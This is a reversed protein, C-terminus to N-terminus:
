CESVQGQAGNSVTTDSSLVSELGGIWTILVFVSTDTLFRFRFM